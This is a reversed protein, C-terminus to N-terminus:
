RRSSATLLPDSQVADRLALLFRGARMRSMPGPEALPAELAARHARLAEGLPAILPEPLALGEALDRVFPGDGRVVAVRVEQRHRELYRELSIADEGDMVLWVILFIDAPVFVLLVTTFLSSGFDVKADPTSVNISSAGLLLTGTCSSTLLAAAVLGSRWRSSRLLRALM